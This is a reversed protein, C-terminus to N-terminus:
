STARAEISRVAAAAAQGVAPDDVLRRLVDTVSRDGVRGLLEVAHERTGRDWRLLSELTDPHEVAVALARVGGDPMTNLIRDHVERPQPELARASWLSSLLSAIANPHTVLMAGWANNIAVDTEDTVMAARILEVSAPWPSGVSDSIPEPLEVGAATLLQVARVFSAMGRQASFWEKPNVRGVYAVLALRTTPDSVDDFQELLWDMAIGDVEGGYLAMVFLSHRDRESLHEIAEYYPGVVESEFQGAIASYALQRHLRDDPKTLIERIRETLDDLDHAPELVGFASLAEVVGSSTGLYNIPIAEVAAVIRQRDAGQLVRAFQESMELGLLQVHYLSSELCRVIVDVLIPDVNSQRQLLHAALYLRGPGPNDVGDLLRAAHAPRQERSVRSLMTEYTAGTM